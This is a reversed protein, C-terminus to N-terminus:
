KAIKRVGDKQYMIVYKPLISEEHHLVLEDYNLSHGAQGHVSDYGQPPGPLNENTKTLVYKNGPVVDCLLMARHMHHGQTYDHCKSSNPAVYFGKGFRVFQINHQIFKKEFGLKSVGCVGCQGDSCMAKTNALDCAISTGHYHEETSSPSGSSTLKQQYQKWRMELKTNKM